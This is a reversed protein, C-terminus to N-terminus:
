YPQESLFRSNSRKFSSSNEAFQKVLWNFCSFMIAVQLVKAKCDQHNSNDEAM